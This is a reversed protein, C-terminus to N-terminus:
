VNEDVCVKCEYEGEGDARIIDGEDFSHGELSCEGNFGAVFWPGPQGVDDPSDFGDGDDLHAEDYANM